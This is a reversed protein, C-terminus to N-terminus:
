DTQENNNEIDPPTFEFMARKNIDLHCTLTKDKWLDGMVERLDEKVIAFMEDLRAFCPRRNAKVEREILWMTLMIAYQTLSSLDRDHKKM